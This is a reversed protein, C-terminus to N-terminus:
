REGGEANVGEGTLIEGALSAADYGPLTRRVENIQSARVETEIDIPNPVYPNALRLRYRGEPLQLRAPTTAESPTREGTDLNEIWRVNAWPMVLLNLTAPRPPPVPQAPETVAVDRRLVRDFARYVVGM